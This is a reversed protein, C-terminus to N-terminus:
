QGCPDDTSRPKSVSLGSERPASSDGRVSLYAATVVVISQAGMLSLYGPVSTCWPVILIGLVAVLAAVVRSWAIARYANRVKASAILPAGVALACTSLGAILMSLRDVEASAGFALVSAWPGLVVALVLVPLSALAIRRASKLDNRAGGYGSAIRLERAVYRPVLWMSLGTCALSLPSFVSSVIRILGVVDIPARAALVYLTM